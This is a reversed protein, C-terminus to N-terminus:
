GAPPVALDYQLALRRAVHPKIREAIVALHAPHQAYVQFDAPSDFDAVIGVSANGEALGLDLGFSYARIEPIAGPLTGLGDVIARRDAESTEPALELCVVHRIM